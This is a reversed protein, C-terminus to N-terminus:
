LDRWRFNNFAVILNGIFNALRQIRRANSICRQHIYEDINLERSNAEVEPEYGDQNRYYMQKGCLGCKVPRVKEKYLNEPM